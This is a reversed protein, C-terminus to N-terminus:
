NSEEEVWIAGRGEAEECRNRRGLGWRSGEGLGAWGLGPGGQRVSVKGM